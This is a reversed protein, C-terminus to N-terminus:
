LAARQPQFVSFTVLLLLVAKYSITIFKLDFMADFLFALPCSLLHVLGGKFCAVIPSM